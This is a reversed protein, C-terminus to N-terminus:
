FLAKQIVANVYRNLTDKPTPGVPVAITEGGGGGGGSQPTSTPVRIIITSAAPDEYDTQEKITTLTKEMKEVMVPPLHESLTAFKSRPDVETEDRFPRALLNGIDKGRKGLSKTTAKDTIASDRICM